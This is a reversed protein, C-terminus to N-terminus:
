SWGIMPTSEGVEVDRGDTEDGNDFVPGGSRRKEGTIWRASKAWLSFSSAQKGRDNGMKNRMRNGKTRARQLHGLGLSEYFEREQRDHERELVDFSDNKRRGKRRLLIAVITGFTFGLTTALIIFLTAHFTIRGDTGENSSLYSHPEYFHLPFHLPTSSSNSQGQLAATQSYASTYSQDLVTDSFTAGYGM